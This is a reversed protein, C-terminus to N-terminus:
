FPISDDTPNTAQEREKRQREQEKRIRENLLVREADTIPRLDKKGDKERETIQQGRAEKLELYHLFDVDFQRETEADIMEYPPPAACGPCFDGDQIDKFCGICWNSV